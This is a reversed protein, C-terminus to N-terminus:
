RIRYELFLDLEFIQIVCKRFGEIDLIKVIVILIGGM